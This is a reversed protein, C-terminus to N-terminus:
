ESNRDDQVNKNNNIRPDSIVDDYEQSLGERKYDKVTTSIHHSDDNHHSHKRKISNQSFKKMQLKEVNPVIDSGLGPLFAIGVEKGNEKNTVIFAFDGITKALTELFNEWAM